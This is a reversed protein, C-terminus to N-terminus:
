RVHIIKKTGELDDTTFRMFYVGEALRRGLDDTGSWPIMYYGPAKVEDTLTKVRQGAANYVTLSVHMSRPVGYEIRTFQSFPNPRNQNFFVRDPILDPKFEAISSVYFQYYGTLPDQGANQWWSSDQSFLYFEIFTYSPYSPITYFYTGGSTSDNSVYTFAGGDARYGLTDYALGIWDTIDTSVIWPGGILSDFTTNSYVPVNFDIGITVENSYYSMTDPATYNAKVVYYYRTENVVTSDVFESSTSTGVSTYPGGQTESREVEFNSIGLILELLGPGSSRDVSQVTGRSLLRSEVIESNRDARVDAAAVVRQGPQRASRASLSTPPVYSVVASMVWDYGRPQWGSGENYKSRSTNAGDDTVPLPTSDGLWCIGVHFDGDVIIDAASLDFVEANPYIQSNIVTDVFLEAGPSGFGDDDWVYFAFTDQVVYFMIAAAEVRCPTHQPTFQTAIMDGPWSWWYYATSGHYSLEEGPPLWGLWVTSDVEGEVELDSPALPSLVWFSHSESTTANMLNDFARVYYEVLTGPDQTPIQYTFTDGSVSVHGVATVMDGVIYYLSDALVGSVDTIVASASYPGPGYTSGQLSVFTIDPGQTDAIFDLEFDDIYWWYENYAVYHFAIKVSSQGSVISTIDHSRYGSDDAASYMVVTQWNLGNDTSVLVRGSDPSSASYDNYYHWYSLTYTGGASCDFRPSILWDDQTEIPSYYIRALNSGHTSYLYRHWDNNDIINPSQTGGDVIAWGCFPPNTSNTWEEDFDKTYTPVYFAPCVTFSTSSTDNAPNQDGPLKTGCYLTQQGTDSPVFKAAFTFEETQGIMLSGTWTETTTDVGGTTFYVPTTTLANLGYNRLTVTVDLSDEAIVPPSYPAVSMIGADTLPATATTAYARVSDIYMYNGYKSLALFGIYLDMNAAFDGVEVDFVRWSNVTDVRDFGAVTTFNINDFSYEVFVSDHNGSDGTDGYMYFRLMIKKPTPGINFQHTRLRAMSGASASYSRYGAVAYGELVPASPYTPATYREWNYNGALITRSWDQPPFDSVNFGSAAKTSDDYVEIHCRTTDNINHADGTLNTYVYLTDWGLFNMSVPIKVSDSAGGALTGTYTVSGTAPSTKFLYGVSFGSQAASGSNFIGVTITDQLNIISTPNHMTVWYAGIDNVFDHQEGEVIQGYGTLVFENNMTRFRNVNGIAVGYVAQSAVPKPLRSVWGSGDPAIWFSMPEQTTSAATVIVESGLNDTLIDGTAIDNPGSYISATFQWARGQWEIGDWNWVSVQYTSSGHVAVLEAGALSGDINGSEIGYVTSALGTAVTSTEWSTGNWYAMGIASTGSVYFENGALDPRIDAIVASRPYTPQSFIIRTTDWATGTWVAHMVSYGGTSSYIPVLLDNADGDNNADGITLDYVGANVAFSDRPAWAAGDWEFWIVRYPSASMAAVIDTYADGDIDGVTVAQPSGGSFAYPEDIRFKEKGFATSTTDTAIVLSRTGGYQVSVLRITDDTAGMFYRGVAIRRTLNASSGAYVRNTDWLPAPTRINQEYYLASYIPIDALPGETNNETEVPGAILIGAILITMVMAKHLSFM